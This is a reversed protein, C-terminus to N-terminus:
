LASAIDPTSMPQTVTTAQVAKMIAQVDGKNSQIANGYYNQLSNIVKDTLQGAGGITKGDALEGGYQVKLNRLAPGMRKQVHGVCDMKEVFHDKGYPQQRQLMLRTKTVTPSAGSTDCVM